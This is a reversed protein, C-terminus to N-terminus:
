HGFANLQDPPGPLRHKGEYGSTNFQQASINRNKPMASKVKSIVERPTVNSRGAQNDLKSHYAPASPAPNDNYRSEWRKDLAKGKNETSASWKGASKVASKAMSGVESPVAGLGSKIMTGLGSPQKAAPARSPAKTRQYPPTGAAVKPAHQPENFTYVPAPSSKGSFEPKSVAPHPKSEVAPSRGPTANGRNKAYYEKMAAHHENEAPTTEHGPAYYAGPKAKPIRNADPNDSVNRTSKNDARVAIYGVKRSVYKYGTSTPLKSGNQTFIGAAAKNKALVKAKRVEPTNTSTSPASSASAKPKRAAARTKSEAVPNRVAPAKPPEASASKSSFAAKTVKPQAPQSPTTTMTKEKAPVISKWTARAEDYQATQKRTIEKGWDSNAATHMASEEDQLKALREPKLPTQRVKSGIPKAKQEEWSKFQNKDLEKETYKAM